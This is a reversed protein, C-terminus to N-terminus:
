EAPSKQQLPKDTVAAPLDETPMATGETHVDIRRPIADAEHAEAATAIADTM